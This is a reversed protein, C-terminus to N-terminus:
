KRYELINIKVTRDLISLPLKFLDLSYFAESGKKNTNSIKQAHEPEFMFTGLLNNNADYFRVNYESVKNHKYIDTTKLATQTAFELHYSDYGAAMGLDQATVSYSGARKIIFQESVNLPTTDSYFKFHTKVTGLSETLSQASALGSFFFLVTIIYITKKM